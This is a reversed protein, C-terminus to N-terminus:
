ASVGALTRGHLLDVVFRDRGTKRLIDLACICTDLKANYAFESNEVVSNSDMFTSVRRTYAIGRDTCDKQKAWDGSQPPHCALCCLVLTAAALRRITVFDGTRRM